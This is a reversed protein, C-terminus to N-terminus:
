SGQNEKKFHELLIQMKKKGIVKEVELASASKINEVSKFHLLLKRVTEPGIGKIKNLESDFMSDLRKMKHFTIGFRHAEDRLHQIVKLTPSKKDLFLPLPDGPVYIEELKKAISIVRIKEELALKKLANLAANLQGKGGDIVVLQPLEHQEDLQRKYRRYVIEEMTAYDDPGAVTKVNFHRYESKLPRANKFVVCAAVPNTGQLNSNDFCEIRRPLEKLKLEEKMRLLLAETGKNKILTEGRAKEMAYMMANRHSLELLRWKDGAKPVTFRVNDWRADVDFPVIIEAAESKLKKRIEVIAMLLIDALPEDLKRRLELTHIQVVAGDTVKLYNVVVLSDQEVCSFVDVEGISPNVVVAKSRYRELLEIKEKVKQAEEFRYQGSLSYMLEKLHNVVESLNGKLIKKIQRINAAYDEESQRGICPALCRNMHYELCPTYKGQRIKAPSLDLRCIRLPYLDAILTLLTRVIKVSTYPGFYESGDDVFTRTLFVRPFPENKICVWPFTKDDKLQINYRPKYNKILNNELLFAEHESNVVVYKINLIQSVLVQVKKNEPTKVFYSSVRKKLNKAKGVYILEEKSNFFQYVGPVEPISEIIKKLKDM